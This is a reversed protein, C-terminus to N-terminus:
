VVANAHHEEVESTRLCLNYTASKNNNIKLCRSKDKSNICKSHDWEEEVKEGRTGAVEGESDM